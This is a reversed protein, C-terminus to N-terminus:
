LPDFDDDASDREMSIAERSAMAPKPKAQPKPPPPAAVPAAMNAMGSILPGYQKLVDNLNPLGSVTSRLTFQNPAQALGFSVVTNKCFQSAQYGIMAAEPEGSGAAVSACRGIHAAVMICTDQPLDAIAGGLVKDHTINQDRSSAEIASQLAAKTVGIAICGDLEAMYIKGFDPIQYATADTDGIKVKSPEIPERGGVLGPIALLQDWLARSRATDNVALVIGVNPIFDPGHKSAPKEMKGPVVYACITQINGFFERGIDFGTVGPQPGKNTAKLAMGALEPNLGLGVVAAADKPVIDLCKRSMPPLRLLNYAISRHEDALRVVLQSSLTGKHIGYSYTAWRFSHLDAIANITAFERRDGEDMGKEAIKLASELNVYAFLTAGARQAMVESLDERTALSKSDGSLLRGIVGEVQDRDNGVVLLSETLVGVIRVGEIDTGFTPLDRVKEALPAFQFATELLGKLLLVDGHHIVLVGTPPKDQQPDFGTIAVAAGGFSNLAAFLSPSISFRKPVHVISKAGSSPREDLLARVDSGAIGLMGALKEILEGPRNLEAYAIADPPMLTSFNEAALHDRCRGAGARAVARSEAPGDEALREYLSRAASFDKAEKELYYAKYLAQEDSSQGRAAPILGSLPVIAFAIVALRIRPSMLPDEQHTRIRNQHPCVEPSM